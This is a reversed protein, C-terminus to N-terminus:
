GFFEPLQPAFITLVSLFAFFHDSSISLQGLKAEPRTTLRGHAPLAV